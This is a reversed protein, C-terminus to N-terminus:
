ATEDRLADIINEKRIKRSAYLMTVFVIGFVGLVSIGMAGWPVQFVTDDLEEVTMVVMYIGWSLFLSVPIGLLLTRMGYFACEYNMMRKFGRDSLGVSRLMALERRRLRINTSITNFVNAVSILAIMLLFVVTFISVVSVASRYLEFARALNVLTYNAEVKEEALLARLESMTDMPTKTWFLAGLHEVGDVTQLREFRPKMSLPAVVVFQYAGTEELIYSGDIPYNDEFTAFIEVGEEAGPSTLLFRKTEGAFFTDHTKWNMLCVFVKGQGGTYEELPLGLSEAFEGYIDDEIFQTYLIMRATDGTSDDQMEERYAALFDAPLEDTTAAYFCDAQWTSETVSEVEKARDYLKRFEEEGMDETMFAIDGDAGEKTYGGIMEELTTGFSSGVVTLVVSLTLSLIVSRYRKKNRRFNKLALSGELGYMKWTMKSIKVAKAETKIEGTQRICDMIPMSVAKKAPLYASILITILSLVACAALAPASVSLTMKGGSELMTSFSGSVAPLLLVICGIGALIGLPIGICGICVGEFLVAGRLQKATAGVSMLIGYQHVRENLSISFANYILFVSGTMIIAALVGGITLLFINFIRNESVGMFRLLSENIGYACVGNKSEAYRHVNRPNKLAIYLSLSKEPAEKDARTIVTYGPSEHLEFEAREFTGVVTCTMERAEVLREGERYPDCQSLFKEGGGSLGEASEPGDAGATRKGVALRLTDGVSIKVGAKLAISDAPVIIETSNEPLRGATLLVPLREFSEESFGAFFLYPKEASQEGAGELVAYGINEYSAAEEVAEDALWESKQIAPVDSFTIHWNGKKAIEAEVMYHILSTGFSAIATFLATSLVVGVVTVLTGTRNKRLGQFAIKHFINRM